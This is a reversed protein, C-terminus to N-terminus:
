RFIITAPRKKKGPGRLGPRSPHPHLSYHLLSLSLSLSLSPQSFCENVEVALQVLAMRYQIRKSQVYCKLRKQQHRDLKKLFFFVRWVFSFHPVQCCCVPIVIGAFLVSSANVVSVDMWLSTPRDNLTPTTIQVHMSTVLCGVHCSCRWGSM